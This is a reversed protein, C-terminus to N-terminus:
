VFAEIEEPDHQGAVHPVAMCTATELEARLLDGDAVSAWLSDLMRRAIADAEIRGSEAPTSAPARGAAASAPARRAAAKSVTASRAAAKNAATKNGAAKSSPASRRPRTKKSM